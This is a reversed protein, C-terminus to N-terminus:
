GLGQMPTSLHPNQMEAQGISASPVKMGAPVSTARCCNSLM